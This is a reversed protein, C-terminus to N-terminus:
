NFRRNEQDIRRWISIMEYLRLISNALRSSISFEDAIGGALAWGLYFNASKNSRNEENNFINNRIFEDAKQWNGSFCYTKARDVLTRINAPFAFLTEQYCEEAESFRELSRLADGRRHAASMRYQILHAREDFVTAQAVPDNPLLRLQRDYGRIAKSLEEYAFKYDTIYEQPLVEIRSYQTLDEKPTKTFSRELLKGRQYYVTGLLHHAEPFYPRRKIAEACRWKIDEFVVRDIHLFDHFMYFQALAIMYKVEAQPANEAEPIKLFNLDM